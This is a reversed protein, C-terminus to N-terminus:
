MRRISRRAHNVKQQILMGPLTYRESSNIHVNQAALDIGTVTYYSHIYRQISDRFADAWNTANDRRSITTWNGYRIGLIIKEGYIALDRYFSVSTNDWGQLAKMSDVRDMWPEENAVMTRGGLFERVESRSLIWQEILMEIRAVTPLDGFQNHAGESLIRHTDQLANLLKFGDPKIITNDAQIFYETAEYILRHFSKLFTSRRDAPNFGPKMTSMVVMDYESAYEYNRRTPTLRHQTDQIYGWLINNLPRLPDLAFNLLPDKYGNKINQFRRAIALMTQNLMGEEHWYSWILEILTVDTNGSLFGGRPRTDRRFYERIKAKILAYYPIIRDKGLYDSLDFDRNAEESNGFCDEEEEPFDAVSYVHEVYKETAFKLLSFAETRNFPLRRTDSKIEDEPYNIKAAKRHRGHTGKSNSDKDQYKKTDFNLVEDIFNCYHKFDLRQSNIADWLAQDKTPEGTTTTLKIELPHKINISKLNVDVENEITNGQINDSLASGEIFIVLDADEPSGVMYEAVPEGKNIVMNQTIGKYTIGLREGQELSEWIYNRDSFKIKRIVSSQDEENIIKRISLELDNPDFAQSGGPIIIIKAM